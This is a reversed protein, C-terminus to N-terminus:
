LNVNNLVISMNSHSQSCLWNKVPIITRFMELKTIFRFNFRKVVKIKSILM